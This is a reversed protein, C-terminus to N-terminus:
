EYLRKLDAITTKLDTEFAEVYESQKTDMFIISLTYYRKKFLNTTTSNIGYYNECFRILSNNWSKFDSDDSTLNNGLFTSAEDIFKKIKEKSTM